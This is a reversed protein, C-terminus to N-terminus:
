QLVRGSDNIESEIIESASSGLASLMSAFGVFMLYKATDIIIPSGSNAIKDCVFSFSEAMYDSEIIKEDTDLEEPIPNDQAYQGVAQKFFDYQQQTLKM